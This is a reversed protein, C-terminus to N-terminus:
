EPKIGTSFYIIDSVSREEAVTKDSYNQGHCVM